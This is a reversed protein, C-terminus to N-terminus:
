RGFRGLGFTRAERMANGLALQGHLGSWRKVQGLIAEVMEPDMDPEVDEFFVRIGKRYDDDSMVDALIVPEDDSTRQNAALMAKLEILLFATYSLGVEAEEAAQGQAQEEDNAM